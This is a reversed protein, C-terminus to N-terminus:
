ILVGGETIEFEFRTFEQSGSSAVVAVFRCGNEVTAKNSGLDQRSDPDARTGPPLCPPSACSLFIHHALSLPCPTQVHDTVKVIIDACLTAVNELVPFFRLHQKYLTLPGLIPHDYSVARLGQNSLLVLPAHLSIIDRIATLVHHLTGVRNKAKGPALKNLQEEYFRETWYFTSISDVVLLGIEDDPLQSAHYSGLHKISIALQLLSKPRFIHLRRLAAQILTNQTDQDSQPSLRAVRVALLKRFRSIDFSSDADYFIAARGRIAPTSSLSVGSEPLICTLLFHYLLHTKGSSAPGQIEIVDGRSLPLRDDFLSIGTREPPSTYCRVSALLHQLTESPIEDLCACM